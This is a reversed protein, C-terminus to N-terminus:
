GHQGGQEDGRHGAAQREGLLALLRSRLAPWPEGRLWLAAVFLAPLVPSM